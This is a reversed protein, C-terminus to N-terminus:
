FPDEFRVNAECEFDSCLRSRSGVLAKCELNQLGQVSTENTYTDKSKTTKMLIFCLSKKDSHFCCNM